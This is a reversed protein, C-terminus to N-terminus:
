GREFLRIGAEKEFARVLLASRQDLFAKFGARVSSNWVGSTPSSPILHSALARTRVRANRPVDNLYFRPIRKGIKMNERAALYCINLISNFKEPGIDHESLLARPFIHHKDNRNARSSIDEVPIEAGDELFRPKLARLLCFFANSLPGPRSYDTQRLMHVSVKAMLLLKATGRGGLKAAFTADAMLNPRYGRGSYRAGVATAWFWKRLLVKASRTPRPGGSHYFFLTLITFMPESPLFDFNPVGLELLFDAASCFADRLKPWIREFRAREDDESELKTVMADIGREGLDRHGLALAITQLITSRAVREFGNSFRGQLERVMSRLNLRSARAFARDAADVRMGQSNIRIFTERVEELSTTKCYVFFVPYALIRRRCDELRNMARKGHGKIRRRWGMALLDVVSVLKQALDGALRARYHFHQDGETAYPNFYVQGFHIASGDSNKIQAGQGRILNWIVSLRQQGDILFLVEGNAPDYQPLVHLNKRLQTEYSGDTQWVLITGIPYQLYLSDLLDCVKAASWVFERQLEPVAFVGREILNRLNQIRIAKQYIREM